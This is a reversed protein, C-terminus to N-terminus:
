QTKKKMMVFKVWILTIAFAMAAAILIYQFIPGFITDVPINFIYTVVQNDKDMDYLDVKLVHNGSEHFVYDTSWVSGKHLEPLIENVLNDNHFIRIGMTFHNVGTEAYNSTDGYVGQNYNFIKFEMHTTQNVKPTLPDTTIVVQYNGIVESEANLADPQWKLGGFFNNFISDTGSSQANAGHYTTAFLACACITLLLWAKKM